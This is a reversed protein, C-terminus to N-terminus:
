NKILTHIMSALFKKKNFNIYIKATNLILKKISDFDKKDLVNTVILYGNKKLFNRHKKINKNFSKLSVKM